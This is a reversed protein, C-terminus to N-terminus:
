RPVRGAEVESRLMEAVKEPLSFQQVVHMAASHFHEIFGAPTSTDRPTALYPQLARETERIGEQDSMHRAVDALEGEYHIVRVAVDDKVFLGTGLLLGAPRGEEDRLIPSDPRKFRAFIEGIEREYGAKVRYTIAAYPM